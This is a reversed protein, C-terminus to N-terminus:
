HALLTKVGLITFAIVVLAVYIVTRLWLLRRINKNASPFM